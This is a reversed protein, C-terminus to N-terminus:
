KLNELDIQAMKRRITALEESVTKRCYGVEACIDAMYWGRSYRLVFIQKQRDTLNLKNYIEDFTSKEAIDMLEKDTM